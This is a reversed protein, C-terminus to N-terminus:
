PFVEDYLKKLEAVALQDPQKAEIVARGTEQWNQYAVRNRLVARLVRFETFQKVQGYFNIVDRANANTSAAVPFLMADLHPNIMRAMGVLANIEALRKTDGEPTRSPTLVKDAVTLIWRIEPAGQGEGGADVIVHEYHQALTKVTRHAGDGFAAALFFEPAVELESRKNNWHTLSQGADAEVLAVTHGAQVLAVALNLATTTKVAGGKTNAVLTIPM